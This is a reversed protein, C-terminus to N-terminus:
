TQPHSASELALRAAGQAAHFDTQASALTWNPRAIRTLQHSISAYIDPILHPIRVGIGGALFLHQPRYLAHAIRLARVLARVPPHDSRLRTLWATPDPGYRAALSAASLYGELSGAGGDPGIVSEGELSVDIQGFHGPSDGDVSLPRGDDLVAAGVGTGIALVFMRGAPRLSRYLDYATAYADTAVALAAPAAGFAAAVLERLRVGNLGPLNVSQRLVTRTEDLLGPVCLGVAVRSKDYLEREGVAGCGGAAERIAEVLEDYSPKSYSASRATWLVEGAGGVAALKVSTGGIDIGIGDM